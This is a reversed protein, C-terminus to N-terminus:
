PSRRPGPPHGHTLVPNGLLRRADAAKIDHGRRGIAGLTAGLWVSGILGSLRAALTRADREVLPVAKVAAMAEQAASEPIAGRAALSELDYRISVLPITLRDLTGPDYLVSIEDPGSIRGLRYAEYVWGSGRMGTGALEAARWAGVSAAGHVQVGRALARRIEEPPLMADPNLAGDVIAM